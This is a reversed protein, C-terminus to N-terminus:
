LRKVKRLAKSALCAASVGTVPILMSLSAQTPAPHTGAVPPVSSITRAPFTVNSGPMGAPTPTVTVTEAPPLNDARFLSLEPTDGRTDEVLFLGKSYGVIQLGSLSPPLQWTSGTRIDFIKDQCPEEGTDKDVANYAPCETYVAYDGFIFDLNQNM